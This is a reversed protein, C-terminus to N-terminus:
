EKCAERGVKTPFCSGWRESGVRSRWFESRVIDLLAPKRETTNEYEKKPLPIRKEFENIKKESLWETHCTTTPCNQILPLSASPGQQNVM